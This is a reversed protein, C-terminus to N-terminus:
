FIFNEDCSSGTITKIMKNSFTNNDFSSITTMPILGPYANEAMARRHPGMGGERAATVLSHVKGLVILCHQPHSHSSAGESMAAGSERPGGQRGEAAAAGVQFLLTQSVM